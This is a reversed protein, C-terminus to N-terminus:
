VQACVVSVFVVGIFLSDRISHNVVPRCTLIMGYNNVSLVCVVSVFVVGVFLSHRMSHNVVPRCVRRPSLLAM